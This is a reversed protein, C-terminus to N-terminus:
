VQRLSAGPNESRYFAWPLIMLGILPPYASSLYLSHVCDFSLASVIALLGARALVSALFATLM